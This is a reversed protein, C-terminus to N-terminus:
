FILQFNGWEVPVFQVHHSLHCNPLLSGVRGLDNFFGRWFHFTLLVINLVKFYIFSVSDTSADSIALRHKLQSCNRETTSSQSVTCTACQLVTGNRMSRDSRTFDLPKTVAPPWPSFLWCVWRWELFINKLIRPSKYWFSILTAFSVNCSPLIPVTLIPLQTLRKGRTVGDTMPM